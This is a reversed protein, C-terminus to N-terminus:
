DAHFVYRINELFFEAPVDMLSLCLSLFSFRIPDEGDDHMMKWFLEGGEALHRSLYGLFTTLQHSAPYVLRGHGPYGAPVQELVHSKFWGLSHARLINVVRTPNALPDVPGAILILSRPADRPDYASLLATGILAPVAGQCVAIVHLDPGLARIASIVYEINDEIGFRGESVPVYRADFWDTIAVNRHRILGAVVDRLLVAFGGALPAVVLVRHAPGDARSFEKLACFPATWIDAKSVPLTEKGIVVSEIGFPRRAPNSAGALGGPKRHDAARM